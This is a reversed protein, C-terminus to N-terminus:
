RRPESTEPREALVLWLGLRLEEFGRRATLVLSLTREELQWTTQAEKHAFFPLPANSHTLHGGLQGALAAYHQRFQDLQEEELGPLLTALAPGVTSRGLLRVVGRRDSDPVCGLARPVLEPAVTVLTQPPEALMERVIELPEEAPRDSSAPDGRHDAEDQAVPSALGPATSCLLVLCSMSVTTTLM